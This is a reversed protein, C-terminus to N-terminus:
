PLPYLQFLTRSLESPAGFYRQYREEGAPGRMAQSLATDVLLRFDDDNRPLALAVRSMVFLKEPVWLAQPDAQRTQLNLLVMRDGFFADVERADVQRVGEAYNDVEELRSQLGLERIRQRAWEVTTTGRLVAFSHKSLGQNITARWTPGHEIPQGSLPALLSQPADRRVIVGLGATFVPLSFSLTERRQLTEVMPSCIIDVQGARLTDLAKDLTLPQYRLQLDGLGPQQRLQEAIAQCLEITYGSAHQEDGDSFPANGALFGLTLTHSARIRALSDARAAESAIGAFLAMATLVAAARRSIKLNM